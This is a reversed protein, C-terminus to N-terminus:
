AKTISADNAIRSSYCNRPGSVAVFRKTWHALTCESPRAVFVSEAWGRGCGRRRRCFQGNSTTIMHRVVAKRVVTDSSEQGVVVNSANGVPQDRFARHTLYEATNDVIV